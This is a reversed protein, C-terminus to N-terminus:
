LGPSFFSFLRCMGTSSGMLVVKQKCMGPGRLYAVLASIDEVDNKLSSYGFGTYSSRMRFEFVSYFIKDRVAMTELVSDVNLVLNTTQPGSTLGGIYILANPAFEKATYEYACSHSTPSKFPHVRVSYPRPYGEPM